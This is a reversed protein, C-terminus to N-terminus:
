YNVVMIITLTFFLVLDTDWAVLYYTEHSTRYLKQSLHEKEREYSGGEEM